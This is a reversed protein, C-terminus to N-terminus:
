SRSLHFPSQALGVITCFGVKDVRAIILFQEILFIEIFPTETKGAREYVIRKRDAGHDKGSSAACARQLGTTCKEEVLDCEDRDYVTEGEASTISTSQCITDLSDCRETCTGVVNRRVSTAPM